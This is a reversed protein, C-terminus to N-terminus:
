YNLIRTKRKSLRWFTLIALGEVITTFLTIQRIGSNYFSGMLFSGGFWAAGYATNFLGYSFGRKNAPIMDAIAARMITEQIAMAIGWLVACALATYFHTDFGLISIAVAIIPLAILIKLGAKDYLSGVLLAFIAAVGMAIAYFLPIQVDTLVSQIKFHYALIQFNAFGLISLFSFLMYWWFREPIKQTTLPAVPEKAAPDLKGPDRMKRRALWLFVLTLAVPIWLLRFGEKYSGKFFLVATFIMPGIVAGVQDIAEHIGFGLGTGVQKAAYSLMTDKAPTRIAKGFRELVLLLAAAHWGEVWAMLPMTSLLGYGIFTITWYRKTKDAFYGSVLRFAYGAFEGFGAVLGVISASAGLTALYPGSISRGGEYTIDGFLSVIGFLVIFKLSRRKLNNEM